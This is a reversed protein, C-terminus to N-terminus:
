QLEESTEPEWEPLMFRPSYEEEFRKIKRIQAGIHKVEIETLIPNPTQYILGNLVFSM